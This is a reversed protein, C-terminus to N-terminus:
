TKDADLPLLSVNETIGRYRINNKYNLKTIEVSGAYVM